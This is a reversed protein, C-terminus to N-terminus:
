INNLVGYYVGLAGCWYGVVTGWLVTANSFDSKKLATTVYLGLPGSVSAWVVFWILALATLQFLQKTMLPKNKTETLKGDHGGTHVGRHM